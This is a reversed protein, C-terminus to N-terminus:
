GPEPTFGDCDAREGDTDHHQRSHGCVVCLRPARNAWSDGTSPPHPDTHTNLSPGVGIEAHLMRRLLMKRAAEREPGTLRDLVKLCEDVAEIVTVM